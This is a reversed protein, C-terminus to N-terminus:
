CILMIKNLSVTTETLSHRSNPKLKWSEITYGQRLNPLCNVGPTGAHPKFVPDHPLLHGKCINKTLIGSVFRLCLIHLDAMADVNDDGYFVRFLTAPIPTNQYFDFILNAEWEWSYRDCLMIDLCRLSCTVGAPDAHYGTGTGTGMYWTGQLRGVIAHLVEHCSQARTTIVNALQALVVGTDLVSLFNDVNIGVGDVCLSANHRCM